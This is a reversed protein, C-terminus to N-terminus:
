KTIKNRTIFYMPIEPQLKSGVVYRPRGTELKKHEEKVFEFDFCWFYLALTFRVTIEAFTKGLCIRKGGLFPNHALPNRNTGDARKFWKSTSDFREPIFREPEPWERPDMHIQQMNILFADDVEFKVGGITTPKAFNSPSGFPFPTYFRLVEFYIMKLVSFEEVIETTLKEQIDDKIPELVPDIEARFRDRLETFETLHTVFNTTTGQITKSGALFMVIIDDIIDSHCDKYNDDGLLIGIMDAADESNEGKELKEVREEIAKQIFDRLTKSNKFCVTDVKTIEKKAMFSAFLLFPNAELRKAQAEFLEDIFYCLQIEKTGGEFKEYTLLKKSYGPGVLIDTIIRSQLQM